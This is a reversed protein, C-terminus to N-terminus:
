FHRRPRAAPPGLGQRRGAKQDYERGSGRFDDALCASGGSLAGRWPTIAPGAGLYRWLLTLLMTGPVSFLIGALYGEWSKKPSLRPTIKHRGIRRGVFYAATDALWTAPLATLVWWMGDPLMRLSILYAGLWGIYIIGSGTVAFDTGAQDRGREFAILHYAMVAMIILGLVGFAGEPGNLAREAALILTGAVAFPASPELGGIKFLQVYEYVAVGLLLMILGSYAWGGLYIALLGIPLLVAAVMVRRLLTDPNATKQPQSGGM